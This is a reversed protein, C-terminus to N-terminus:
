KAGRLANKTSDMEEGCAHCEPDAENIPRDCNSCHLEFIPEAQSIEGGYNLGNQKKLLRIVEAGANLLIYFFIGQIFSVAGLAIYSISLGGEGWDHNWGTRTVFGSVVFAAILGVIGIFFFFAGLGELLSEAGGAYGIIRKIRQAM